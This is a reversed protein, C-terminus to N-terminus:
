KDKARTGEADGAHRSEHKSAHHSGRKEDNGGSNGAKAARSGYALVTFHELGDPWNYDDAARRVARMSAIVSTATPRSFLSDVRISFGAM